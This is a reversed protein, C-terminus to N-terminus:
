NNHKHSLLAFYVVNCNTNYTVSDRFFVSVKGLAKYHKVLTNDLLDNKAYFILLIRNGFLGDFLSFSLRHFDKKKNIKTGKFLLNQKYHM